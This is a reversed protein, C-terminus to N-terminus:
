ARGQYGPGQYGPGQYGPGQYGPGESGPGQYGPGQYGPGESAAGESAAGESAAGESAAGEPAAGESARGSAAPLYVSFISGHGLTSAAEVHGGHMEVLVKVISLGLGTGPLGATRANSARVFRTFLQGVEEPPIGIGDDAVDIRWNSGDFAATVHVHGNRHSFKVANALLNDFVQMLRRLDGQVPPGPGATVGITVGQKAAGAAASGVAEGTLEAVSVPALDLPLAGADLRDLMLLDGVLRHLRDANREVIDLFRVGEPTLGEAEGRILESFSLISTLPTRLEHSVIALFQNRSEDLKRLRENQEALQHQVQEALHRAALETDLIQQRQQEIAARESTDWALWLGGRFRGDVVVPWYDNETTRGDALKVQEKSMPRNASRAEGVHRAFGDPDAFLHQIRPVLSTVATGVLQGPEEIGYLAGFSRSVHTIQGKEDTIIIAPIAAGILCNLRETQDALAALSREIETLDRLFGTFIVEGGITMQAPTLEVTRETGDARRISIRMQGTFEEADGTAVSTQLHQHFRQQDRDPIMIGSMPQGLVDDRRYGSLTEAAPNFEVLRGSADMALIATPSATILAQTLLQREALTALDNAHRLQTAVITAVAHATARIEDDWRGADGILALACLCRGGIPASYALLASATLGDSEVTAVQVAATDPPPGADRQMLTLAGIKALLAPAVAGRPDMALVAAPQGASPQFAVAARVGPITVLRALVAPLAGLATDDRLIQAAAFDLIATAAAGDQRTRHTVLDSGARARPAGM